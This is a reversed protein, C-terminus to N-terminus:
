ARQGTVAGNWSVRSPTASCIMPIPLQVFGLDVIGDDRGTEGVLDFGFALQSRASASLRNIWLLQGRQYNSVTTFAPQGDLEGPPVPPTDIDDKLESWSAIIEAGLRAVSDV